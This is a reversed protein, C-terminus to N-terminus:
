SYSMNFQHSLMLDNGFPLRYTAKATLIDSKRSKESKINRNM